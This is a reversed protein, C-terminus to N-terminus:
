KERNESTYSKLVDSDECLLTKNQQIRYKLGLSKLVMYRVLYSFHNSEVRVKLAHLTPPSLPTSATCHESLSLSRPHIPDGACGTTGAKVASGDLGVSIDKYSESLARQKPNLFFIIVNACKWSYYMTM